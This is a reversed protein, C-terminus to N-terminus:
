FWNARLLDTRRKIPSFRLNADTHNANLWLQLMPGILKGVRTTPQTEEQSFRLFPERLRLKEVEKHEKEARTQQQDGFPQFRGQTHIAPCPRISPRPFPNGMWSPNAQRTPDPLSPYHRFNQYARGFGPQRYTTPRSGPNIGGQNQKKKKRRQLIKVEESNQSLVFSGAREAEKAFDEHGFRVKAMVIMEHTGKEKAKFVNIERVPGFIQQLDRRLLARVVYGPLNKILIQDPKTTKKGM